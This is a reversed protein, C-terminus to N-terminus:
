EELRGIATLSERGPQFVETAMDRVQEVAVADIARRVDDLTVVHGTAALSAMGLRAHAMSSDNLKLQGVLVSKALGIEAESLKAGRFLVSRCVELARKARTGDEGSVGLSVAAAAADCSLAADCTVSYALQEGERIALWLRSSMHGGMACCLVDLQAAEPTFAQIPSGGQRTVPFALTMHTQATGEGLLSKAEAPVADGAPPAVRAPVQVVVAGAAEGGGLSGGVGGFHKEVLARADTESCGSVVVYMRAPDYHARFFARVYDPALGRVQAATGAIQRGLPHEGYMAKMALEAARQEVNDEVKAIEECVVNIEAEIDADRLLPRLTMEALADLATDLARVDPVRVYYQTVEASTSANFSGGVDNLAKALAAQNEFKHTGKFLCHELLHAVGRHGAEEDRSGTAVGVIASV